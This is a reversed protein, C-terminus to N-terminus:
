SYASATALTRRLFCTAPVLTVVFVTTFVVLLWPQLSTPWPIVITLLVRCLWVFTLFFYFARVEVSGAFARKKMLLLLISLGSLLLSFLFNVYDISAYIEPPADPIYSYWAFAYPAFFHLIGALASVSLGVTYSVSSIRGVESADLEDTGEM